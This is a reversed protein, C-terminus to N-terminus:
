EIVENKIFEDSFKKGEIYDYQILKYDNLLKRQQTDLDNEDVISGSKLLYDTGKNAAVSMRLEYILQHIANVKVDAADYVFNTLATSSVPGELKAKKDTFNSYVFFDTMAYNFPNNLSRVDNYLGPHHDGFLLVVIKKDMKDIEAIFKETEKDTIHIGQTYYKIQNLANESGNEVKPEFDYKNYVDTYPTHNQMTVLHILKSKDDAKLYDLTEQYSSADSIFNGNDVVEKYKMDDEFLSYDFGLKKYVTRRKYLKSHFSHISIAEQNNSQKYERVISPFMDHNSLFRQFPMAMNQELDQISFGTLVEYETNSTGGGYAPVILKGTMYKDSPDQIYEIPSKELSVGNFNEPDALSESLIYVISIDEFNQNERDRNRIDANEQYESLVEFVKEKSYEHPKPIAEGSFNNIFGLVFGNEHYTRLPNWGTEHFGTKSMVKSFRSNQAHVNKSLGFFLITVILLISSCRWSDKRSEFLFFPKIKTLSKILLIVFLTLVILIILYKFDVMGILDNLSTVFLLDSPFVPEIRLEIKLYTSVSLILTGYVLLIASTWLNNFIVSMFTLLMAITFVSLVMIKKHNRVFRFVSLIKFERLGLELIIFGFIAFVGIFVVKLAITKFDKKEM